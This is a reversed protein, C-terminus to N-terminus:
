AGVSQYHRALPAATVRAAGGKRRAAHRACSACLPALAHGDIAEARGLRGGKAAITRADGLAKLPGHPLDRSKQVDVDVAELVQWRSAGQQDSVVRKAPVGDKRDRGDAVLEPPPHPHEALMGPPSHRKQSPEGARNADDVACGLVRRPQEIRVLEHQNQRASQALRDLRALQTILQQPALAVAEDTGRQAALRRDDWESRDTGVLEEVEDAIGVLAAQAPEVCRADRHRKGGAEEGNWM